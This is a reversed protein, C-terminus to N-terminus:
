ETATVNMTSVTGRLPRLRPRTQTVIDAQAMLTVPRMQPRLNRVPVCYSQNRTWNAMEPIKSRNSMPGWDAAVGRWRGNFLAIANDRAVTVNMIRAACSLNETPNKLQEGTTARCGYRRATDPYIQLLGYWLNGGGVARPNYTSEHKALASMMGVWFARRLEASNQKYAPCWTDIDTPIISDLGEGHAGVASMAARTWVSNGPQHEWRTRPLFSTRAVPRMTPETANVEVPYRIMHAPRPQVRFAALAAAQADIKAQVVDERAIPRFPVEAVASTALLIGAIGGLIPKLLKM